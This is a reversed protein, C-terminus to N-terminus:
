VFSYIVLLSLWVVVWLFPLCGADYVDRWGGQLITAELIWTVKELQSPLEDLSYPFSSYYPRFPYIIIVSLPLFSFFILTKFPATSSNLRKDRSPPLALFLLTWCAAHSIDAITVSIDELRTMRGWRKHQAGCIYTTYYMKNKEREKKKINQRPVQVVLLHAGCGIRSVVVVQRSALATENEKESYSSGGHTHTHTEEMYKIIIIIRAYCPCIEVGEGEGRSRETGPLVNGAALGDCPSLALWCCVVCM